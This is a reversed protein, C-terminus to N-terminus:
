IINGNKLLFWATFPAFCLIDSYHMITVGTESLSSSFHDPRYSFLVDLIYFALNVISDISSYACAATDNFM